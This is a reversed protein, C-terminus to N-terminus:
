DTHTSVDSSLTKYPAFVPDQKKDMQDSVKIPSNLGNVNRKITKQSNQLEERNRRRKNEERITQHNEKTNHKSSMRMIEQYTSDM